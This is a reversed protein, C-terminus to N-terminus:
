LKFRVPITYTVKVPKGQLKGPIWGPMMNVVRLAEADLEPDIGSMVTINEPKGTENITCRVLVTGSIKKDM